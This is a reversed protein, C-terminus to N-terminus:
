KVLSLKGTRSWGPATLRYLYVGASVAAGAEDRGDWRATHHGAPMGGRALTRVKQGAINYVCLEVEAGRPLAYAISVVSRAPNPYAQGLQYAAPVVAAAPGGAVGLPEPSRTLRVARQNGLPLMTTAYTGDYLEQCGVTGSRQFGVSSSTGVPAIAYQVVVDHYPHATTSDYYIVEFKLRTTTGYHVISDWEVILRGNAADHYYGVWAGPASSSSGNLDNWLAFVTPTAFTSTPIATNSYATSTNTGFSIWGNSCVALATYNTGYWTFGFPLTVAAVADDALLSSLATGVGRIEAWAYV